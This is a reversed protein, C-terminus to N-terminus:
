SKTAACEPDLATLFMGSEDALEVMTGIESGIVRTGAVAIGALGAAAARRVTEPGITPMDIRLDQIPQPWKVLVGARSSGADRNLIAVRELMRDTGEAAEVALVRGRSVAVCQGIDLAGIGRAARVGIDIDRRDRPSPAARAFEGVPILLEPVVEDAGRVTYGFREILRVVRALLAADGSWLLDLHTVLTWIGALGVDRRWTKPRRVTGILVVERCGAARLERDIAAVQGIRARTGSFGSFDADAFGDLAIIFVDRGHGRAAEAVTLPLPGGGAIIALPRRDHECARTLSRRSRDERKGSGAFV